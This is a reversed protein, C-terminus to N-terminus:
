YFADKRILYKLTEEMVLLHCGENDGSGPTMEMMLILCGEYDGSGPTKVDNTYPMM